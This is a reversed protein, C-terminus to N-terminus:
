RSIAFDVYEYLAALDVAVDVGTLRVADDRKTYRKSSWQASFHQQAQRM